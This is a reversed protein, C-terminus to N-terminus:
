ISEWTSSEVNVDINARNDKIIRRVKGNFVFGDTMDASEIFAGYFKFPAIEQSGLIAVPDFKKKLEMKESYIEFLEWLNKETETEPEIVNLGLDSAEDRTIPYGHICIDGTIENVINAIKEKDNIADFHMLLLKQTIQKAMRTARYANGLSLPHIKTTLDEFVNVMQDDKVGAKEKALLFYSNLDEVSIEMKQNKNLPNEPNFPHGTSPDVPSLEGLKGMVIKDAGISILTGASHARYPILMEIEDAYSRILKILRIPTIMDGGRTYLFLSIKNQKGIKELHKAFIPIIDDAVKTVFPQRDGTVYTIVKSNREKEIKSILNQTM